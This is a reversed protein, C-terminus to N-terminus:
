TWGGRFSLSFSLRVDKIWGAYNVLAKNVELGQVTVMGTESGDADESEDAGTTTTRNNLLTCFDDFVTSGVAPDWNKSQWYELPTQVDM